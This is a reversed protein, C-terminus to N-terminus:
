LGKLIADIDAQLKDINLNEAGYDLSRNLKQLVQLMAPAMKYVPVSEVAAAINDYVVAQPNQILAKTYAAALTDIYNQM